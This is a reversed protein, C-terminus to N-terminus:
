PAFRFRQNHFAAYRDVAFHHHFQSRFGVRIRVVDFEVPPQDFLGIM